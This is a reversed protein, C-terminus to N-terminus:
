QFRPSAGRGRSTGTGREPGGEWGTRIAEANDEELGATMPGSVIARDGNRGGLSPPRVLPSLCRREAESGTGTPGGLTSIGSGDQNRRPAGVGWKNRFRLRNEHFGASMLKTRPLRGSGTTTSMSMLRSSTAFAPRSRGAITRIKASVSGLSEDFTGIQDILERRILLCFGNPEISKAFRALTSSAGSGRLVPRSTRRIITALNLGSSERPWNTCPGVLGARPEGEVRGVDAPASAPTAVTDNDLVLM